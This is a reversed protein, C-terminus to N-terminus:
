KTLSSFALGSEVFFYGFMVFGSGISVEQERDCLLM